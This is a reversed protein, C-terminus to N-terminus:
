ADPRQHLYIEDFEALRMLGGLDRIHAVHNKFELYGERRLASLVRNLHVSSLGLADSLDGQMMPLEFRGNSTMGIAGLRQHQEVFFCALRQKAPKLGINFVWERFRAADILTERWLAATLNPRDAILRLLHEHAILGVRADSLATLDHDMVHLHLSQLDPIDGPVHVSLIQRTGKASSKSRVLFGKGLLCCHAPRDGERVVAAGAPLIKETLALRHLARIDDDSLKTDVKLRRILAAVFDM